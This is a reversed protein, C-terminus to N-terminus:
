AQPGPHRLHNLRCFEEVYAATLEPSSYGDERLPVKLAKVKAQVWEKKPVRNKAGKSPLKIKPQKAKM